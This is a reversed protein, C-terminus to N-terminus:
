AAIENTPSQTFNAVFRNKDPVRFNLFTQLIVAKVGVMVYFASDEGSM